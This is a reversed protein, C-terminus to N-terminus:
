GSGLRRDDGPGQRLEVAADDIEVLDAIVDQEHAEDLLRQARARVLLELREDVELAREPGDAGRQASKTRAWPTRYGEQRKVAKAPEIYPRLTASCRPLASCWSWPSCRTDVTRMDMSSPWLSALCTALSDPGPAAGALPESRSRRPPRTM